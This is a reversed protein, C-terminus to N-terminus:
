FGHQLAHGRTAHGDKQSRVNEFDYFPEACV